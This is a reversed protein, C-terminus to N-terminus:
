YQQQPLLKKVCCFSRQTCIAAVRLWRPVSVDSYWVMFCFCMFIKFFQSVLLWDFVCSFCVGWKYSMKQKMRQQSTKPSLKEVIRTLSTLLKRKRGTAMMSHYTELPLSSTCPQTDKSMSTTVQSIMQPPMRDVLLLHHCMILRFTYTNLSKLYLIYHLLQLNHAIYYYSSVFKAIVINPDSEFSLAVEDLIPALKKCHGCWPAYFEILVVFNCLIM